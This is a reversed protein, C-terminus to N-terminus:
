DGNTIERSLDIKIGNSVCLDVFGFLSLKATNICGGYLKMSDEIRNLTDAIKRALSVDIRATDFEPNAKLFLIFKETICDREPM